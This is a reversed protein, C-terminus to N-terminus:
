YSPNFGEKKLKRVTAGPHGGTATFARCVRDRGVQPFRNAVVILAERPFRLSGGQWSAKIFPPMTRTWAPKGVLGPTYAHVNGHADMYNETHSSSTDTSSQARESGVPGTEEASSGSLDTDQWFNERVKDRVEQKRISEEPEYM